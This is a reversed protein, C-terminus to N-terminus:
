VASFRNEAVYTDLGAKLTPNEALTAIVALQDRQRRAELATFIGESVQLKETESTRVRERADLTLVVFVVSLIIAVTLFTVAMTRAILRPPRRKM